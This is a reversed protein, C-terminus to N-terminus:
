RVSGSRTVYALRVYASGGRAGDRFTFRREQVDWTAPERPNRLDFGRLDGGWLHLTRLGAHRRRSGAGSEDRVDTRVFLVVWVVAAGSPASGWGTHTWPRLIVLRHDASALWAAQIRALDPGAGIIEGVRASTGGARLYRTLADSGDAGSTPSAGQDALRM